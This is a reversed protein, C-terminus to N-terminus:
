RSFMDERIGSILSMKEPYEANMLNFRAILFCQCHHAVISLELNVPGEVDEYRGCIRRVLLSDDVSFEVVSDLKESRKEM